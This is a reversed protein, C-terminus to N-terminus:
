LIKSTHYLFTEEHSVTKCSAPIEVLGSHQGGINKSWYVTKEHHAGEYPSPYNNYSSNSGKENACSKNKALKESHVHCIFPSTHNLKKCRVRKGMKTYNHDGNEKISIRQVFTEGELFVSNKRCCKKSKSIEKKRCM